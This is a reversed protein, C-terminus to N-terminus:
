RSIGAAAPSRRAVRRRSCSAATAKDDQFEALEGRTVDTEPPDPPLQDMSTVPKGEVRETNSIKGGRSDDYQGTKANYARGDKDREIGGMHEIQRDLKDQMERAKKDECSSLVLIVLLGAQKM